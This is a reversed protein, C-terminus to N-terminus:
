KLVKCKQVREDLLSNIDEIIELKTTSTKLDAIRNAIQREINALNDSSMPDSFRIKEALQILAERTNRDTESNASLQIESQLEKLYFVKKQIKSETQEIENRGTKSTIMCAIAIGAIFSCTLIASWTPLTPTFLFVAFAIVQIVAYVIGIHIVPISLMKSKLTEDKGLTIKWVVIQSAIAITTFVYVIWFATTKQTPVTIAIVSILAIIIGVFFYGRISNKKM